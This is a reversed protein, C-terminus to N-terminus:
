DWWGCYININSILCNTDFWVHPHGTFRDTEWSINNFPGRCFPSRFGNEVLIFLPCHISVTSLLEAGSNQEHGMVSKQFCNQLAWKKDQEWKWYGSNPYHAKSLLSSICILPITVHDAMYLRSVTRLTPSPQLLAQSCLPLAKLQHPFPAPIPSAIPEHTTTRVLTPSKVGSCLVRSEFNDCRQVACM